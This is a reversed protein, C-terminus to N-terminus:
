SHWLGWSLPPCAPSNPASAKWMGGFTPCPLPCSLPSGQAPRTLQQPTPTVWSVGPGFHQPHGGSRPFWPEAQGLLTWPFCRPCSSTGWAPPDGPFRGWSHTSIAPLTHVPGGQCDQQSDPRPGQPHCTFNQTAQTRGLDPGWGQKDSGGWRTVRPGGVPRWEAPVLGSSVSRSVLPWLM